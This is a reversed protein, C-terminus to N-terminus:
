ARTTPRSSWCTAVRVTRRARRCTLSAKYDVQEELPPWVQEAPLSEIAEDIWADEDNPRIPVPAGAEKIPKTPATAKGDKDLGRSRYSKQRCANSCFQHFPKQPEFEKGCTTCPKM